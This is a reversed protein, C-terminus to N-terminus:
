RLCVELPVACGGLRRRVDPGQHALLRHGPRRRVRHALHRRVANGADGEAQVGPRSSRPLRSTLYCALLRSSAACVDATLHSSRKRLSIQQFKCLLQLPLMDTHRDTCFGPKAFMVDQM